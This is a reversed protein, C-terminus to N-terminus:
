YGPQAAGQQGTEDAPPLTRADFVRQQQPSLAAYLAKLALSQRQMDALEQKLEAEALDMRHPSDIRAFMASAARRRQEMRQGAAADAYARWAPEQGLSLNLAQHLTDMPDASPGYTQAAYTQATAAPAVGLALAAALVRFNTM